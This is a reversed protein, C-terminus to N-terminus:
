SLYGLFLLGTIWVVIFAFTLGFWFLAKKFRVAGNRRFGRLLFLLASLIWGFLGVYMIVLAVPNLHPNAM